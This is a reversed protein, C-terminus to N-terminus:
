VNAITPRWAVLVHVFHLGLTYVLVFGGDLEDYLVISLATCFGQVGDFDMM